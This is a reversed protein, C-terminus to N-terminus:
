LAAGWRQGRQLLYSSVLWALLGYIAASGASHGSPFSWGTETMLSIEPRPREVWGKLLTIWLAIGIGAYLWTMVQLWARRYVAFFIGLVVVATLWEISGLWTLRAWIETNRQALAAFLWSLIPEDMATWQLWPECGQEAQAVLCRMDRLMWGFLMATYGATVLLMNWAQRSVLSAPKQRARAFWFCTLMLCLFLGCPLLWATLPLLSLPEVDASGSSISVIKAAEM